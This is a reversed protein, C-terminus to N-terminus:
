RIVEKISSIVDSDDPAKGVGNDSTKIRQPPKEGWLSDRRLVTGEPISVYTLINCVQMAKKGTEKQSDDGSITSMLASLVDSKEYYGVTEIHIDSLVLGDVGSDSINQLTGLKKNMETDCWYYFKEDGLSTYGSKLYIYKKFNVPVNEPEIEKWDKRNDASILAKISQPLASTNNDDAEIKKDISYSEYFFLGVGLLIIFVFLGIFGKKSKSSVQQQSM